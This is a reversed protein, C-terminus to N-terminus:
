DTPTGWRFMRRLEQVDNEDIAKSEDDPRV